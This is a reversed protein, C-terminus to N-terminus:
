ANELRWQAAASLCLCAPGGIAYYSRKWRASSSNPRTISTHRVPCRTPAVTETLVRLQADVDHTDSPIRHRESNLDYWRCIPASCISHLGNGDVLKTGM